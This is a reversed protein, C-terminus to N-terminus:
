LKQHFLEIDGNVDNAVQLRAKSVRLNPPTVEHDENLEYIKSTSKMKM